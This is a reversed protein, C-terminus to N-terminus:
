APDVSDVRIPEIVLPPSISSNMLAVEGDPKEVLGDPLQDLVDDGQPPKQLDQRRVRRSPRSDQPRELPRGVRDVRVVDGPRGGGSTRDEGRDEGARRVGAGVPHDGDPVRM